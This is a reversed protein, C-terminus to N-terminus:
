KVEKLIIKFSNLKELIWSDDETPQQKILEIVIDINDIAKDIVDQEKELQEKLNGLYLHLETKQDYNLLDTNRILSYIKNYNDM